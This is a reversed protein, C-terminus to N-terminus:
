KQKSQKRNKGKDLLDESKRKLTSKSPNQSTVEKPIEESAEKESESTRVFEEEEESTSHQSNETIEEKKKSTKKSKKSTSSASSQLEELKSAEAVRAQLDEIWTKVIRVFKKILDSNCNRQILTILSACNKKCIISFRSPDDDLAIYPIGLHVAAILSTHSGCLLDMIPLSALSSPCCLKYLDM